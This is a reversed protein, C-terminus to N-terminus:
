FNSDGCFWYVVNLVVVFLNICLLFVLIIISLCNVFVICLLLWISVIICLEVILWFLLDLLMVVGFVVVWYLIIM